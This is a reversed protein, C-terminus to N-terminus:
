DLASLDDKLVARMLTNEAEEHAALSASVQAFDAEVEAWREAATGASQARELLERSQRQFGAHEKCLEEARGSLRPAAAIVDSFYGGREELQFHEPLERALDGLLALAAAGTSEREVDARHERLTEEIAQLLQRLGLHQVRLQNLSDLDLGPACVECRTAYPLVHLRQLGIRRECRSCLGYEGKQMQRLANRILGLEHTAAEIIDALGAAAVEGTDAVDDGPLSLDHRIGRLRRALRSYREVLGQRVDRYPDM